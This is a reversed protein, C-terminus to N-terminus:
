RAEPKLSALAARIMPLTKLAPDDADPMRIFGFEVGNVIFQEAAQLAKQLITIQAMFGVIEDDKRAAQAAYEELKETTRAIAEAALKPNEYCWMWDAAPAKQTDTM